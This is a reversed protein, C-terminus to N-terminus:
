DRSTPRVGGGPVYPKTYGDPTSLSSVQGTEQEGGFSAPPHPPQHGPQQHGDPTRPVRSAVSERAHREVEWSAKEYDAPAEGAVAETRLTSTRDLGGDSIFQAVADQPSIEFRRRIGVYEILLLVFLICMLILYALIAGPLGTFNILLFPVFLSFGFAILYLKMVDKQRRLVTIVQYLFDIGATLGGTVLMVYVLGRYPEFDLGYLFSMISIGAWGMFLIMLVVIVVIIVGMAIIVLDFKKHMTPDAWVNALRVLLPKYILQVIILIMQAPFYIANFYLQSDYALAGEMVFKPMADVFGYLFLAVFLPACQKFLTVISSISWGRSRPTEFLTLPLTLFFFSALAAVAMAVSAVGVDHTIILALTFVVFVVVSRFAQSIGALYMKDVQQLRGEYVDALGDVMKYVYVGMSITFMLSEYGRISCYIYGVVLMAVCTLVRTIQYDTFTHAEELDSVQYTRMGFNALIMLLSGTVFALSFMGALEVGALWTIVITLIPFLLGWCAAGITNWIFDRSTKHSAYMEEQGAFTGEYAAGLLRNWWQSALRTFISPQHQKYYRPGKAGHADTRRQTNLSETLPRVSQSQQPAENDRSRTSAAGDRTSGGSTGRSSSSLSRRKYTRTSRTGGDDRHVYASDGYERDYDDYRRDRGQYQSNSDRRSSTPRQAM